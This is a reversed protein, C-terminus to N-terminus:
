MLSEPDIPDDSRVIALESFPLNPLQLRRPAGVVRAKRM